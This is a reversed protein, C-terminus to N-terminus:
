FGLMEETNLIKHCSLVHATAFKDTMPTPRDVALTTWTRDAQILRGVYTFPDDGPGSKVTLLVPDGIKAPRDPRVVVLDGRDFKGLADAPIYTCYAEASTAVGPPRRRFEVSDESLRYGELNQSGGPSSLARLPLLPLDYPFSQLDIPKMTPAPVPAIESLGFLEEPSCDLIRAIQNARTETLPVRGTEYKSITAKKVGLETALFEQSVGRATRVVKLRNKIMGFTYRGDSTAVAGLQSVMAQGDPDGFSVKITM